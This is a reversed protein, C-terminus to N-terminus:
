TVDVLLGLQDKEGKEAMDTPEITTDEELPIEQKGIAYVLLAVTSAVYFVVTTFADLAFPLRRLISRVLIPALAALLVDAAIARSPLPYRGFGYESQGTIFFAHRCFWLLPLCIYLLFCGWLALLAVLPFLLLLMLVTGVFSLVGVGVFWVFVTHTTVIAKGAESSTPSLPAFFYHVVAM